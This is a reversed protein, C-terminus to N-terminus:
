VSKRWKGPPAALGLCVSSPSSKSRCRSPEGSYVALAGAVWVAKLVAPVLGHEPGRSRM